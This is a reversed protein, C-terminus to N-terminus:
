PPTILAVPANTSVSFGCSGFPVHLTKSGVSIRISSTQFPYTMRYRAVWFFHGLNYIFARSAITQEGSLPLPRVIRIPQGRLQAPSPNSVPKYCAQPKTEEGRCYGNCTVQAPFCDVGCVRRCLKQTPASM